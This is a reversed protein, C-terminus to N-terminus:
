KLIDKGFIKTGQFRKPVPFLRHQDYRRQLCRDVILPIIAACAGRYDCGNFSYYNHGKLRLYFWCKKWAKKRLRDKM